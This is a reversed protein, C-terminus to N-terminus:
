NKRENEIEEIVTLEILGAINNCLYDKVIKEFEQNKYFSCDSYKCHKRVGELKLSIIKLEEIEDFFFEMKEESCYCLEAINRTTKGKFSVKVKSIEKDTIESYHGIYDIIFNIKPTIYGDVCKELEVEMDIDEMTFSDYFYCNVEFDARIKM